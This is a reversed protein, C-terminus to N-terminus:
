EHEIILTTTLEVLNNRTLMEVILTLNSDFLSILAKNHINGTKVLLLKKPQSNILYSELFDSDKTIVVRDEQIAISIILEDSSANSDPLEMTHIADYGRHNPLYSLAIPLQADVIFKV